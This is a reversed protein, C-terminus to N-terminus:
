WRVAAHFAAGITPRSIGRMPGISPTRGSALRSMSKDSRLGSTPAPPPSHLQGGERLRHSEICSTRGTRINRAEGDVVAFDGRAINEAGELASEDITLVENRRRHGAASDRHHGPGLARDFPRRVEGIGHRAAGEGTERCLEKARHRGRDNRHCPGVALGRGDLHRPLDPAHATFARGRDAGKAHGRGVFANRGPQGCGVDDGEQGVDGAERAFADGMDGVLRRAMAQALIAVLSQRNGGPCEGVQAAVVEIVM